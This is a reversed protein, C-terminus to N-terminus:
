RETFVYMEDYERKTFVIQMDEMNRTEFLVMCSLLYFEWMNHFSQTFYVPNSKRITEWNSEFNKYWECLTKAYSISLNQIHHYVIGQSTASILMQNVYPIVAGPFIYTDLWPDICATENGFVSKGPSSKSITQLVFIGQDTLADKCVKFFMNFNDPGVHEFMEVSVIRDFKTDLKPLDRYDCFIYKLKDNDKAHTENAYETQEKSITIGMVNCKPYRKSIASMLGGWGFGIDLVNMEADDPIQLKDILLNIKNQQAEELTNTGPKWYGCTYQRQPDLMHEYLIDPIDYHEEGVRKSLSVSQPNQIMNGVDTKIEEIVVNTLVRMVSTPDSLVASFIHAIYNERCMVKRFFTPLDSSTWEGAMYAEGVVLTIDCGNELRRYFNESVVHFEESTVNLKTLLSQVLTKM